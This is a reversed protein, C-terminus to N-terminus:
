PSIRKLEERTDRYSPLGRADDTSVWLSAAKDKEEKTVIKSYDATETVDGDRCLAYVWTEINRTPVCIAVRETKTRTNVGGNKAAEDLQKKRANVGVTDGDVVVILGVREKGYSRLAKLEKAFNERVWQEASGSGNPAIKVRPSGDLQKNECYRRFFREQDRDECLLVVRVRDTV